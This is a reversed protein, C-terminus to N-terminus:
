ELTCALIASCHIVGLFVYTYLSSRKAIACLSLASERHWRCHQLSSIRHYYQSNSAFRSRTNEIHISVTFSTERMSFSFLVCVKALVAFAVSRAAFTDRKFIPRQM